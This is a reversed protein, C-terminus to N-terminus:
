NGQVENPKRPAIRNTEYIAGGTKVTRMWSPRGRALNEWNTSNIQLRKLPSKRTDRYRRVQNGQHRSSTSVDGNFLQKPLRENDMRVLHGSWRLQLQRLMAYISRVGTRELVHTDPIRDQWRRKLLRLLCSLHIHNLRRARKKYVTWIEAAHLLTPLIVAKYMKLKTSFQLCHRNWITNQPRGFAQSVESIRCAVEDDIKTSRSLTSDLYMFKDVVQLQTENVSIQPANHPPVTNPPPQHMVVTRETNIVLGFNECAASFLDMSRLLDKESTTHYACYDAFLLEHVTTISVRSQFHMRRHNLLHGDTPDCLSQLQQHNHQPLLGEAQGDLPPFVASTGSSPDDGEEGEGDSRADPHTVDVSPQPSTVPLLRLRPDCLGNCGDVTVSEDESTRPDCRLCAGPASAVSDADADATNVVESPPVPPSTQPPSPSYRAGVTISRKELTDEATSIAVPHSNSPRRSPQTWPGSGALNNISISHLLPNQVSLLAPRPQHMTGPVTPMVSLAAHPGISVEPPNIQADGFSPSPLPSSTGADLSGRAVRSTQPLEVNPNNDSAVDGRLLHERAFQCPTPVIPPEENAEGAEELRLYALRSAENGPCFSFAATHESYAESNGVGGNESVDLLSVEDALLCETFVPLPRHHPGAREVEDEQAMANDDEEQEDEEDEEEEVEEELVAREQGATGPHNSAGMFRTPRGRRQRQLRPPPDLLSAASSGDSVNLLSPPMRLRHSLSQLAVPSGGGGSRSEFMLRSVAHASSITRRPAAMRSTSPPPATAMDGSGSAQSSGPLPRAESVTTITSQCLPTVVQVQTQSDDSRDVPHIPMSPTQRFASRLRGTTTGTTATMRPAASPPITGATDAARGPRYNQELLQTSRPAYSHTAASGTHRSHSPGTIANSTSPISNQEAHSPFRVVCMGTDCRENHMRNEEYLTWTNDIPDFAEVTNLLRNGNYGAAVYIRGALQCAGVYCRPVNMSSVLTWQCLRTNFSEVTDLHLPGRGEAGGYGGCVYINDGLVACGAGSRRMYMPKCMSWTGRRLDYAEMSNLLQFGDYGGLCYLCDDAVVLGAGERATSMEELIRWEAIKPHYVELARLRTQGDFGGCVYILGQHTCAASLGRKYHMPTLWRWGRERQAVDLLGVTNLREGGDFGGIVYVCTGLSCAAVYRYSIPLNPLESWERTRPNFMEVSDSPSQYSGFGGIVVLYEDGSDRQRFRRDRMQPRLDPRLHFRKAEDVLDRCAMSLRILRESDVVDTLFRVSMTALRLQSLLGPLHPSREDVDQYVWRIMARYATEESSVHLDERSLLEILEEATLFLFEEHEIVSEFNHAAYNKTFAELETCSHLEAFRRIGLVNSADVEGFLFSSCVTKVGEMQVLSAAPLLDQVNEMSVRVQGTYMFDLLAEMVDPSVSKLEVELQASEAMGSSFMADFYDSSAALVVRHAPFERSGVKVVIDCLQGRKRFTNMKAFASLSYREADPNESLNLDRSDNSDPM